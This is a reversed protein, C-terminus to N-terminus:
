RSHEEPAPLDVYIIDDEVRVPYTRLRRDTVSGDPEGTRIDFLAHHM